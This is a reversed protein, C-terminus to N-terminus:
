SDTTPSTPASPAHRERMNQPAQTRARDQLLRLATAIHDACQAESFRFTNLLLDYQDPDAPDKHFHDKVFARRERDTQEVWREAEEQPCNFRRQIAAVRDKRPGVMRVRLTTEPPLVQAAGRGVIVCEGHAALALLTQKLHLVYAIESVGQGSFFALAWEKLWSMRKQDVSELLEARVKMDRAIWEVLEHDYVHWGLRDGVARAVAPGNAGAECNLAITFPPPTVPTTPSGLVVPPVRRRKWENLARQMAEALRVSSPKFYDWDM